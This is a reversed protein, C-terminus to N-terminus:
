AVRTETGPELQHVPVHKSPRVPVLVLLADRDPESSSSSLIDAAAAAGGGKWAREDGRRREDALLTKNKNTKRGETLWIFSKGALAETERLRKRGVERENERNSNSPLSRAREIRSPKGASLRGASFPGRLSQHHASAGPDRQRTHNIRSFRKQGESM